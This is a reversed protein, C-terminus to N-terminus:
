ELKWESIFFDELSQHGGPTDTEDRARGDTDFLHVCDAGRLIFTRRWDDEHFLKDHFAYVNGVETDEEFSEPTISDAETGLKLAVWSVTTHQHDGVYLEVEEEEEEVVVEEEEEEEDDDDSGMIDALFDGM